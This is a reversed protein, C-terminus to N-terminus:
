ESRVLNRRGPWPLPGRHINIQGNEVRIQSRNVLGALGAYLFVFGPLGLAVFPLAETVSDFEILWLALLYLLSWLAGSALFCPKQFVRAGWFRNLAQLPM